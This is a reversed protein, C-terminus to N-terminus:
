GRLCAMRVRSCKQVDLERRGSRGPSLFSLTYPPDYNAQHHLSYEFLAANNAIWLAGYNSIGSQSINQADM